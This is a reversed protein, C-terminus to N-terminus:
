MGNRTRTKGTSTTPTEAREVLTDPRVRRGPEGARPVETPGLLRRPRERMVNVMSAPWASVSWTRLCSSRSTSTISISSTVPWSTCLRSSTTAFTVDDSTAPSTELPAFTSSEPGSPVVTSNAPSPLSTPSKMSSSSFWPTSSTAREPGTTMLLVAHLDMVVFVARRRQTLRNRHDAVAALAAGVRQVQAVASLVHADTQVRAALRDLAHLGVAEARHRHRLRDRFRRDDHDQGWVGPLALQEALRDLLVQLRSRHEHERVAERDMERLDLRVLVDVHRHDGGLAWTVEHAAGVHLSHAGGGQDGDVLVGRPVGKMACQGVRLRQAGAPCADDLRCELFLRLGVQEALLGHQATSDAGEDLCAELRQDLRAILGLDRIELHQVLHLEDDVQHIPAAQAEHAVRNRVGGLESVVDGTGTHDVVVNPLLHPLHQGLDLVAAEGLLPNVLVGVPAVCKERHALFIGFVLDLLNSALEARHHGPQLRHFFLSRSSEPCLM